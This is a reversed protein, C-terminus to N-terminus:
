PTPNLSLIAVVPFHDSGGSDKLTKAHTVVFNDNFFIHDIRALAPLPVLGGIRLSRSPYTFGFGFGAEWHANTLYKSLMGYTQSQDTTNFDGGLIVPGENHVIDEQLLKAIQLRRRQWGGRRLFHANYVTISAAPSALAVKQVRGMGKMVEKSELPYRSVVALLMKPEYTYHVDQNAYFGQLSHKLSEFVKPTIEQLLLLDPMEARVVQAIRDAKSNKSWVNYSVVKLELAGPVPVVKRPWFLPAYSAVIIIVSIGLLAALSRQQALLCWLAGPLLGLLLWPMLYGTYRTLILQDGFIWSLILGALILYGLLWWGSFIFLRM